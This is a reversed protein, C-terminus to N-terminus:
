NRQTEEMGARKREGRRKRWKSDKWRGERRKVQKEDRKRRWGKTNIGGM